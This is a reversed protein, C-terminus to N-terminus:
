GQTNMESQTELADADPSTLEQVSGEGPPRPPALSTRNRATDKSDALAKEANRVIDKPVLPDGPAASVIGAAFSVRVQGDGVALPRAGFRNRLRELLTVAAQGECEDLVLLFEDGGVRGLFDSARIEAKIGSVLMELMEDGAARGHTDNVVKFRDVDFMVFSVPALSRSRAACLTALRAELAPRALAGTLWDTASSGAAQERWVEVVQACALSLGTALALVLAPGDIAAPVAGAFLTSLVVHIIFSASIPVAAASVGRPMVLGWVWAVPVLGMGLASGLGGAAAAMVAGATALALCLLLGLTLPRQVEPGRVKALALFAAATVLALGGALRPAWHPLAGPHAERFLVVDAVLMVLAAVAGFMSLRALGSAALKHVEWDSYVRGDSGDIGHAM